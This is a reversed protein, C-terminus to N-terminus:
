SMSNRSLGGWQGRLMIENDAAEIAALAGINMGSERLIRRTADVQNEGPLPPM